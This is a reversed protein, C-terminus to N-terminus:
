AHTDQWLQQYEEDTLTHATQRPLTYEIEDALSITQNAHLQCYAYEIDDWTLGHTAPLPCDTEDCIILHKQM